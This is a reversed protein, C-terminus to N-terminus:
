SADLRRGEPGRVGAAERVRIPGSKRKRGMFSGGKAPRASAAARARREATRVVSRVTAAGWRKGHKTPIREANLDDVILRYSEGKARRAQILAPTKSTRM